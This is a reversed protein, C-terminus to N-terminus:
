LKETYNQKKQKEINTVSFILKLDFNKTALEIKHAFRPWHVYRVIGAFLIRKKPKLVTQM